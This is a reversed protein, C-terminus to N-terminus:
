AMMYSAALAATAAAVLKQAGSICQWRWTEPEPEVLAGEALPPYYTYTQTGFQLQCTEVTLKTGDKLFKQAAGCCFTEKCLPRPGQEGDATPPPFSCDANSEGGIEPDAIPAFVMKDAYAKVVDDALKADDIAQQERRALLRQAQQYESSKCMAVERTYDDVAAAQMALFGDRTAEASRLEEATSDRLLQDSIM